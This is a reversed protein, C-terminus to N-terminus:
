RVGGRGKRVHCLENDAVVALINVRGLGVSLVVLEGLEVGVDGRGDGKPHRDLM